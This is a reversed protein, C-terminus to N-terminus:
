SHLFWSQKSHRRVDTSVMTCSSKERITRSILGHCVNCDLPELLGIPANAFLVCLPFFLHIVSTVPVDVVLSSPDHSTKPLKSIFSVIDVKGQQLLRFRRQPDDVRKLNRSEKM